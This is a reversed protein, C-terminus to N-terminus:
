VSELPRSKMLLTHPCQCQLGSKEGLSDYKNYQCPCSYEAIFTVTVAKQPLFHCLGSGPM